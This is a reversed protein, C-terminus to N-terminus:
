QTSRPGPSPPPSSPQHYPPSFSLWAQGQGIPDMTNRNAETSVAFLYSPSERPQRRAPPALLSLLSASVARRSSKQECIIGASANKRPRLFKCEPKHPSPGDTRARKHGDKARCGGGGGWDGRGCITRLWSHCLPQPLHNPFAGGM